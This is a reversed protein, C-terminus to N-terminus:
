QNVKILNWTYGAWSKNLGTEVTQNKDSGSGLRKQGSKLTLVCNKTMNNNDGFSTAQVSEIITGFNLTTLGCSHFAYSGITKAAPFSASTLSSCYQFAHIGITEAAPFLASKLNSCYQFAYSKIETVAPASVNALYDCYYFAKQEITMADQVVLHISGANRAKSKLVQGVRSIADQSTYALEGTVIVKAPSTSSANAAVVALRDGMPTEDLSGSVEVTPVGNDIYYKTGDSLTISKWETGAWYLKGGSATVGTQGAALELDCNSVNAFEFASEYGAVVKGFTVKTFICGQFSHEGISTVNPLSLEGTLSHCSLFAEVGISTVKTWDMGTLEVCDEFASFGIATNASLDVTALHGCAMFAIEGITTASTARLSVSTLSSCGYFASEGITTASTTVSVLVGNHYFADEPISTIADDLVLHVYRRNIANGVVTKSLGNNYPALGNKVIVKAPANATAAVAVVMIKNTMANYDAEEGSPKNGCTGDVEVTPMDNDIYYKTGATGNLGDLLTISKWAAGAYMLQKSNSVSVTLDASDNTRLDDNKALLGEALTLDCDSVIAGQFAAANVTVGEGITLTGTITCGGFAAAGISTVKTWDMGTLATCGSFANDGITVSKEFSVSALATCGNFANAPVSTADALKLTINTNITKIAEGLHTGQNSDLPKLENVVYFNTIDPLAATLIGATVDSTSRVGM